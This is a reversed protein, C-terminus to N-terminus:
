CLKDASSDARGVPAWRAVAPAVNIAQKNLAILWHLSCIAQPQSFINNDECKQGSMQEPLHCPIAPQALSQPGWSVPLIFAWCGAHGQTLTISIVRSGPM